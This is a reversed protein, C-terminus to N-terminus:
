ASALPPPVLKAWCFGCVTAARMGVAGCSPCASLEPAPGLALYEVLEAWSALLAEYEGSVAEPRGALRSMERDLAEVIRRLGDTRM